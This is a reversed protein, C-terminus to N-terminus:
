LPMSLTTNYYQGFWNITSKLTTAAPTRIVSGELVRNDHYNWNNSPRRFSNDRCTDWCNWNMYMVRFWNNLCNWSTSLRHFCKEPCNWNIALRRSWKHPGILHFCWVDNTWAIGILLRGTFVIKLVIGISLRRSWKDPCNWNNSLVLCWNNQCNWNNSLQSSHAVSARINSALIRTCLDRRPQGLDQEQWNIDPRYERLHRNVNGRELRSIGDSLTNAVGKVHKARFYWGSHIELCGLMRMLTGSRPEKGRSM